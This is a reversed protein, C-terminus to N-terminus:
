LVKDVGQHNALATGAPEGFGALINVVGPPFGAEQVLQGLRIASLPMREASELIVTCGAALARAIKWAALLLPFNWPVIQGVVGAPERVTYAHYNGLASPTITTSTLKTAGGAMHRFMAISAPVDAAGAVSVPKGSDLAEIQAFEAAHQEMLDALRHLLMTREAPQMKSWSGTELARRAAQVALDVDAVDAEAVTAITAGTAPDIVDFRKGSTAEQFTGDILLDLRGDLFRQVAEDPRLGNVIQDM